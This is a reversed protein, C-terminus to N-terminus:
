RRVANAGHRFIINLAKTSAPGGAGGMGVGSNFQFDNSTIFRSLGDNWTITGNAGSGDFTLVPDNVTDGIRMSGFVHLLASPTATGIGIRDTGANLYLLNQESTGEMRLDIDAAADNYVDAADSRLFSASSVGDLTDANLNTVVTTSDVTFPATGTTMDFNFVTTDSVSTTGTISNTGALTVTSGSAFAATTGSDFTLTGSTYNDSAGSLLFRDFASDTANVGITVSGNAGGDSLTAPTSVALAREASLSTTNGITVYALSDLAGGPSAAVAENTTTVRAHDRLFNDIVLANRREAPTKYVSVDIGHYARAV